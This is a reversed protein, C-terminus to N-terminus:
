VPNYREGQSASGCYLALFYKMDFLFVVCVLLCQHRPPEAFFFGLEGKDFRSIYWSFLLGHQGCVDWDHSQFSIFFGIWGRFFIVTNFSHPPFGGPGLRCMLIQELKSLSAPISVCSQPLYGTTRQPAAVCHVQSIRLVAAAAPISERVTPFRLKSISVICLFIHSLNRM